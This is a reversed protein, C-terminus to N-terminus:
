LGSAPLRCGSTMVAGADAGTDTRRRRLCTGAAASGSPVAPTGPHILLLARPPLPRDLWAARSNVKFKARLIHQDYQQFIHIHLIYM